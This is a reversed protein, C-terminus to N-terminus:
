ATFPQTGPSCRQVDFWSRPLPPEVKVAGRFIDCRIHKLDQYADKQGPIRDALERIEKAPRFLRKSYEEFRLTGEPARRLIEFALWGHTFPRRPNQNKFEAAVTLQRGSLDQDGGFVTM